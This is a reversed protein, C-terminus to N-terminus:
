RSAASRSFLLRYVYLLVIGGLIAKSAPDLYDAVLAYHDQLLYGAATLAATWAFSGAASLLLFRGLGMGAVGAPVSVLTRVGPVLRGVLVAWGGYRDFWAAARDFESASVTLWRGHREALRRIRDRGLWRGACYWPLAGVLSGATGALIVLAVQLEGRAAVFGALPMILESPIPPFLNELLMLGAVGAYGGQSVLHTIWEFM